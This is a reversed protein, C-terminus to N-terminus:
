YSEISLENLFFFFVVLSVFCCNCEVIPTVGSVTFTETQPCEINSLTIHM